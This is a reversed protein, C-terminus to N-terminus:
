KGSKKQWFDNERWKQRGDQIEIYLTFICKDQYRHSILAIEIFNKVRVSFAPDDAMRQWLENEQM